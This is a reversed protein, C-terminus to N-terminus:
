LKSKVAKESIIASNGTPDEIVLKVKEQGWMVKNLKKIMNKCKKKIADDEEEDRVHEVQDKIRQLVGEVNSIFGNAAPGPEISGIRPIRITGESSRVVRIKMDDESDIDISFRSAPKQEACEVDSKHYKCNTCSMSFLFVKGFYPIEVEEERLALNPTHCFPCMEGQLTEPEGM